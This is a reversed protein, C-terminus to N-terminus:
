KLKRTISYEGTIVSYYYNGAPLKESNWKIVHEGESFSSRALEDITNGKDDYIKISVFGPKTLKFTVAKMFTNSVYFDAAPTFDSPNIKTKIDPNGSGITGQLHLVYSPEEWKIDNVSQSNTISNTVITIFLAIILKFKM